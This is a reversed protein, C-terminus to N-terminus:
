TRLLLFTRFLMVARRLTLSLASAGTSRSPLPRRWLRSSGFDVQIAPSVRPPKYRRGQKLISRLLHAMEAPGAQRSEKMQQRAFTAADRLDMRHICLHLKRLIIALRANALRLARCRSPWRLAAGFHTATVSTDSGHCAAKWAGFLLASLHRHWLSKNRFILRRCHRRQRIATWLDPSVHRRRPRSSAHPFAVLLANFIHDNIIQLHDDPHLSWPISPCSQFIRELTRAGEPTAMAVRDFQPRSCHARTTDHWKLTIMVPTHDFGLPDVFNPPRGITHTCGHFEGPFAVYDLLAPKGSPSVWSVLRKGSTDHTSNTLLCHESLLATLREANDGDPFAEAASSPEAACYRANADICIIPVANRPVLRMVDDFSTWWEDKEAAPADAIPAHGSLFCFLKSGVCGSIALLRPSRHLVTVSQPDFTVATGDVSTVPISLNLWIQCGLNGNRSPSCICLFPGQRYRLGPDTRTEQLGIVHLSDKAFCQELWRRDHEQRITTCNYTAINLTCLGLSPPRREAVTLMSPMGPVSSLSHRRGLVPSTSSPCGHEDLPPLTGSLCRQDLSWWLWHLSGQQITALLHHLSPSATFLRRAAAKAVSDAAENWPHGQHASVHSMSLSRCQMTALHRMSVLSRVLTPHKSSTATCDAIAAAAQADYFICCDVGPTATATSLAILLAVLEAVHPNVSDFGFATTDDRDSLRGSLFGAWHWTGSSLTLATVAWGGAGDSSAFSGDTYLHVAEPRQAVSRVPMVRLAQLTAPHPDPLLGFDLCFGDLGFDEGLQCFSEARSEVHLSKLSIATPPAICDQLRLVTPGDMYGQFGDSPGTSSEARNHGPALPPTTETVPTSTESFTQSPPIPGGDAHYCLHMGQYSGAEGGLWPCGSLTLRGHQRGIACLVEAVSPSQPVSILSRHQWDCQTVFVLIRVPAANDILACHLGEGCPPYIPILRSSIELGGVHAQLLTDVASVDSDAPFQFHLPPSDLRWVTLSVLRDASSDKMPSCADLGTLVPPQCARSRCPTPVARLLATKVQLLAVSSAAEPDPSETSLVDTDDTTNGSSAESVSAWMSSESDMSSLNQVDLQDVINPRSLAAQSPAWRFLGWGPARRIPMAFLGSPAPVGDEPDVNQPLCFMDLSDEAVVFWFFGPQTRSRALYLCSDQLVDRCDTIHEAYHLPWLEDVRLQIQDASAPLRQGSAIAVAGFEASAVLATTSWDELDLDDIADMICTALASRFADPESRSAEIPPVELPMNACRLQVFSPFLATIPSTIADRPTRCVTILCGEYFDIWSDSLAGNVYVRWPQDYHVPIALRELLEEHTMGRWIGRTYFQPTPGRVDIWAQVEFADDSEFTAMIMPERHSSLLTRPCFRLRRGMLGPDTAYATQLLTGLPRQLMERCGFRLARPRSNPAALLLVAHTHDRRSPATTTQCAPPELGRPASTTTSTSTRACDIASGLTTTTTSSAECHPAPAWPGAGALRPLTGGNNDTVLVTHALAAAEDCSLPFLPDPSTDPGPGVPTGANDSSQTPANAPPTAPSATAHLVPGSSTNSLAPAANSGAPTPPSVPWSRPSGSIDPTVSWPPLGGAAGFAALSPHM